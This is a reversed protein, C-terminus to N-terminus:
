LANRKIFVIKTTPTLLTSPLANTPPSPPLPSEVIVEDEERGSILVSVNEGEVVM